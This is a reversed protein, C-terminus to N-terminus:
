LSEREVEATDPATRRPRRETGAKGEVPAENAEGRDEKGERARKEAIEAEAAEIQRDLMARREALVAARKEPTPAKRADVPLAEEPIVNGAEDVAEVMNSLPPETAYHVPGEFVTGPQHVGLKKGDNFPVPASTEKVRLRVYGEKM